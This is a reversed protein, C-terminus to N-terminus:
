SSGGGSARSAARAAAQARAREAAAARREPTWGSTPKSTKRGLKAKAAALQEELRQVEARAAAKEQEAKIRAREEAAAAALEQRLRDLLQEIRSGLNRISAKGHASADELLVGITSGPGALPPPISKVPAGAPRLAALDGQAKLKDDAAAHKSCFDWGQPTSTTAENTCAAWSCRKTATTM